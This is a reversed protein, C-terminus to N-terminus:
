FRRSCHGLFRERVGRWPRTVFCLGIRSMNASHNLAGARAYLRHGSIMAVRGNRFFQDGRGDVGRDKMIEAFEIGIVLPLEALPPAGRHWPVMDIGAHRM